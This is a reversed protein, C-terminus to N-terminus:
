YTICPCLATFGITILVHPTPLSNAGQWPKIHLNASHNCFTAILSTCYIPLLM